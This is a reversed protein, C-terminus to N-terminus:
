DEKDNLLNDAICFIENLFKGKRAPIILTVAAGRRVWMNDSKTWDILKNILVPYMEILTAVTHNCLTDCSAWNNVFKNQWIEFTIFDDRVYRESIYYSLNCAIFSEEIYGTKWLKTCIDFIENKSLNKIESYIEKSIKTVLSVSVGHSLIKEKFYREGSNKTKSDSNSILINQISTVLKFVDNNICKM